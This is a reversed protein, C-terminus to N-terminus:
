EHKGELIAHIDRSMADYECFQQTYDINSDCQMMSKLLNLLAMQRKGIKVLKPLADLAFDEFEARLVDERAPPQVPLNYTRRHHAAECEKLFEELETM